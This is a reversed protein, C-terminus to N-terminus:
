KLFIVWAAKTAVWLGPLAADVIKVVVAASGLSGIIRWFLQGQTLTLISQDRKRNGNLNLNDAFSKFQEGGKRVDRMIGLQAKRMKTQGSRVLTLDDGIKQRAGQATAFNAKTQEIHDMLMAQTQDLCEHLRNFDAGTVPADEALLDIKAM